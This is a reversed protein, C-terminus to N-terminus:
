AAPTAPVAESAELAPAVHARRPAEATPSPASNTANFRELARQALGNAPDLALAREIAQRQDDRTEVVTALALWIRPDDPQQAALARLVVRAGVMDGRQQRRRVTQLLSALMEQPLRGQHNHETM